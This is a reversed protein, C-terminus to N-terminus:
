LTQANGEEMAKQAARMEDMLLGMSLGQLERKRKLNALVYADSPLHIFDIILAGRNVDMGARHIRDESQIRGEGSFDNSFYIIARSATLTLGMGASNPHGIFCIKEERGKPDQFVKLFEVTDKPLFNGYPVWGRGDVRMVQWGLKTMHDCLRDITGTFAAYMVLRNEDEFEENLLDSLADYKPSPIMKIERKETALEGVGNCVDCAIKSGDDQFIFKNGQCRTCTEAEGPVYNYQFGDSLERMKTLTELANRSGVQILQAARMTALNPKVKIERYIKEPLDLCDKKHKVMVLGNMRRYLKGVEDALPVFAHMKDETPDNHLAHTPSKGCQNCIGPQGDRWAIFKHFRGGTIDGALETVALRDKFKNIDGELLFGPCAVECQWYWDVPSKPAPSGSMLILYCDRGYNNRMAEALHMAAQSRQSSPTKIKSCEDFVVGRPPMKGPMWNDLTKKMEEYTMFVPRQWTKWKHFDLRVSAISSKTGIYWWDTVDSREMIEISALTKGTGMEAALICHKRTLGFAVMEKQHFYVPRQFTMTEIVPKIDINYPAYPNQGQLYSLQFENRRCRNIRWAKIPHPNDDTSRGMWRAGQQARVHDKFEFACHVYYYKDTVGITTPHKFTKGNFWTNIKETYHHHSNDINFM